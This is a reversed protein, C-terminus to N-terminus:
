LREHLLYDAAFNVLKRNGANYREPSRFSFNMTTEPAESFEVYLTESRGPCFVLYSDIEGATYYTKRPTGDSQYVTSDFEVVVTEAKEHHEYATKVQVRELEGSRDIILDYRETGFVPASVSIGRELLESTVIAEARRGRDQHTRGVNMTPCQPPIANSDEAFSLGYESGNAM